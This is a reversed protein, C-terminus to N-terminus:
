KLQGIAKHIHDAFRRLHMRKEATSLKAFEKGQVFKDFKKELKDSFDKPAEKQSNKNSDKSKTTEITVCKFKGQSFEELLINEDL